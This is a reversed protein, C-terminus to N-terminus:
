RVDYELRIVPIDEMSKPLKIRVREATQEFQLPTADGHGLISAGTIEFGLLDLTASNDTWDFLTAYLAGPKTTCRWRPGTRNALEDGLPTPGAGYIAEGNRGVWDGVEKLIRRSPGPIVGRADPGVNLLYNGGKSVIDVLKFILDASDKWNEDDSRFGWTDNLTAPTEWDGPRVSDPIRNDGESEYDSQNKGGLRGSILTNPQLDRVTKELLAAREETMVDLPTDFWIVAIPGYETLLERVQPEAKTRLYTDFDGRQRDDWVAGHYDPGGEHPKKWIAGGPAHWDQAQSYYVGFRLDRAACAEALEAIPDRDFPTADVINYSDVASHYMAFGDHHKATIIMYKMGAAVALDAWAEADFATPNFKRALAEYEDIPIRAKFMIWEGIGPYATGKWFGAPVAYLGWHIFMGFKAERWWAIRKSHDSADASM